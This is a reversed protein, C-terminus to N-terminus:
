TRKAYCLCLKDRIPHHLCTPVWKGEICCLFFLKKGLKTEPAADCMIGIHVLLVRLRFIEFHSKTLCVTLCVLCISRCHYYFWPRHSLVPVNEEMQSIGASLQSFLVFPLSKKTVSFKIVNRDNLSFRQFPFIVFVLSANKKSEDYFM